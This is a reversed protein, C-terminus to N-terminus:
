RLKGLQEGVLSLADFLEQQRRQLVAEAQAAEMENVRKEAYGGAQVAPRRSSGGAMRMTTLSVLAPSFPLRMREERDADRLAARVIEMERSRLEAYGGRLVTFGRGRASQRMTSAFNLPPNRALTMREQEELGALCRWVAEMECRRQEEYRGVGEIRQSSMVQDLSSEIRYPGSGIAWQADASFRQGNLAAMEEASLARDYLSVEDVVANVLGIQIPAEVSEVAGTVAKWGDLRGDWWVAMQQGDYSGAVFHWQGDTRGTAGAVAHYVGEGEDGEHSRPSNGRTRLEFRPTGNTLSLIFSGRALGNTDWKAVIEGSVRAAARVWASVTLQSFACVVGNTNQSPQAEKRCDIRVQNQSGDFLLGFGKVGNTWVPLPDGELVGEWGNGTADVVNTGQGEDFAWRAILGDDALVSVAFAMVSFIVSVNLGRFRTQGPQFRFQTKMNEAKEEGEGGGCGGGCDAGASGRRGAVRAVQLM